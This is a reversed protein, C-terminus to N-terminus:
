NPEQEDRQSKLADTIASGLARGVENPSASSPLSVRLFSVIPSRAQDPEEHQSDDAGDEVGHGHDGDHGDPLACRHGCDPSVSECRPEEVGRDRELKELWAIAVAAVQVLEARLKEPDSEAFAEAVEEALIHRYTGIGAKFAGECKLKARDAARDFERGGTGNPLDQVGWKAQQARREVIVARVVRYIRREDAETFESHKITKM